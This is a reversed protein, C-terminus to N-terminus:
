GARQLFEDIEHAGPAGLDRHDDAAGVDRPLRLHEIRFGQGLLEAIEAAVNIYDGGFALPRKRLSDARELGVAAEIAYVIKRDPAAISQRERSSRHLVIWQRSVQDVVAKERAVAEALEDRRTGRFGTREAAGKAAKRFARAGVSIEIDCVNLLFEI